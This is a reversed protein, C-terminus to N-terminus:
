VGFCRGFLVQRLRWLWLAKHYCEYAKTQPDLDSVNKSLSLVSEVLGSVSDLTLTLRDRQDTGALRLSCLHGKENATSLDALVRLANVSM